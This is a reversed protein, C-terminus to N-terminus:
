VVRERGGSGAGGGYVGPLAAREAMRGERGVVRALRQLEKAMRANQEVLENVRGQIDGIVDRRRAPLKKSFDGDRAGALVDVISELAKEDV